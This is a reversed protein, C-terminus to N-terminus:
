NKIKRKKENIHIQVDRVSRLKLLRGGSWRRKALSTSPM